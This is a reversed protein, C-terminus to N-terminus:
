GELFKNRLKKIDADSINLGVRIFNELSGYKEEATKFATEM